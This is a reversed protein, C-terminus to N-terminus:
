RSPFNNSDESSSAPVATWEARAPPGRKEGEEEEGGGIQDACGGSGRDTYGERQRQRERRLPHRPCQEQMRARSSEVYLHCRRPFPLYAKRASRTTSIQQPRPLPGQCGALAYSPSEHTPSTAATTSTAVAAPPLLPLLPEAAAIALSNFSSRGGGEGRPRSHRPLM